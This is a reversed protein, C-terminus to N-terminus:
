FSAPSGEDSTFANWVAGKGSVEPLYAGDVKDPRVYKALFLVEEHREARFIVGEAQKLMAGHQSELKEIKSIPMPETAYLHPRPLHDRIRDDFEDYCFREAGVMIDFPVFPGHPLYYLTGHAQAMWEGVIREGPDLLDAFLAQRDHVWESFIHHQLYPSTAALYGARSLAVVRGDDLKAVSTCSGDLKEQVYLRDHRDRLKDICMATQGEAVTHDGKRPRSGHIHGISGYAKRGLPKSRSM